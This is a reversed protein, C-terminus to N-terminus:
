LNSYDVLYEGWKIPGDPNQTNNKVLPHCLVQKPGEVFEIKKDIDVHLKNVYDRELYKFERTNYPVQVTPVVMVRDFGLRWYDNCFLSCESAACETTNLVSRRFRLDFPNDFPKPNLVVVGNWCCQVQFPLGKEARKNSESDTTIDKINKRFADGKIDRAVWTDRFTKIPIKNGSSDTEDYYDLDMPCTIDAQNNNSQLILELIDNRCFMIDNIFIIKDFEMSRDGSFMRRQRKRESFEYYPELAKNRVNALYEIRHSNEPRKSNEMNLRHQVKYEELRASFSELMEKTKDTSGNEYISMYVNEFGLFEFVRLLEQMFQPLIEENNHLNAAFFYRPHKKHKNNKEKKRYYYVQNRISYEYVVYDPNSASLPLYRGYVERNKDFDIRADTSCLEAPQIPKVDVTLKRSNKVTDQEEGDREGLLNGAIYITIITLSILIIRIIIHKKRFAM